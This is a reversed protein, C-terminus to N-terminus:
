SAKKRKTNNLKILKKNDMYIVIAGKKIDHYLRYIREVLALFLYGETSSMNNLRQQNSKCKSNLKVRNNEEMIVYYGGFNDEEKSGNYAAYATKNSIHYIIM